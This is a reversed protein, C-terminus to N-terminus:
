LWNEFELSRPLQAKQLIEQSLGRDRAIESYAYATQTPKRKYTGDVDVDVLAFFPKYGRGWEYGHLFSWWCYGIIETKDLAVANALSELHLLLYSTRQTDDRNPLGNETILIPKRYKRFIERCIRRLGEPNPLPKGLSTKFYYNVGCFDFKGEWNEMHDSCVANRHLKQFLWGFVNRGRQLAFPLASFAHAVGVKVGGADHIADYSRRITDDLNALCQRAERSNKHYPPLGRPGALYALQTYVTPENFVLYYDIYQGFEHCVLSVYDVFKEGTKASLWGGFKHIWRPNTFHHLTVVTTVGTQKLGSFYRHYFDVSSRDIEGERPEIRAWEIGTRFASLGLSELIGFDVDFYEYHRAAHIEPLDCKAGGFHQYDSIGCGFIFNKSFLLRGM